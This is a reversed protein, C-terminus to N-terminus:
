EKVPTLTPTLFKPYGGKPETGRVYYELRDNCKVSIINEPLPFPKNEKDKLIYDMMERWIPAAGTIGSTLTPHMPTNDNNGVWVAVVYDPTYGITWNDRKNDSTGTKVAVTKDRINLASNPGFAPTRANNDSLISSIIYAIESRLAQINNDSKPIPLIEGQWNTVKIIPTLDHRIGGVALTGYVRAMDLMTVAGGGLTLSLGFLSEDQWNEIGMLRGLEVMDTVGVMSLLKVAPINYSSALATRLTVRGHFKGDYNVPTYNNQGDIKYTVPSDNLVSSATFGKELALAYNVVKISSGPPRLSLTVNVNGEKEKNFYDSSGVMALIEGNNPNTVLLAGNGVNFTKLKNINESVIREAAEQLDYDLSTTVRLGSKEVIKPGYLKELTEKVYMVFHPALIPIQPSKLHLEETQAKNQEEKNIYGADVMSKLVDRQRQKTLEPHNGFPSFLSPSAPLGVLLAAEALDLDKVSKGFYTQAASEIGWTMGGYPVQNFYMEFIQEKSYLQETWVSLVLEKIKRTLTKEPTLMVSRILQQTITSGGELDDSSMNRVLARIIGRLSFGKHSFFEKDEIAITANKVVDPIESLKIPTRNEEAYIEYLLKGKRDFIKTTSPIDRLSLYSPNPISKALNYLLFVFIISSTILAGFIFYKIKLILIKLKRKISRDLQLHFSVKPLRFFKDLRLINKKQQYIVQYKIKKKDKHYFISKPFSFLNVLRNCILSVFSQSSSSLVKSFNQSNKRLTLIFIILIKYAKRILLLILNILFLFLDGIKKLVVIPTILIIIMVNSLINQINRGNKKEM